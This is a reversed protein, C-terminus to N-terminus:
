RIQLWNTGDSIIMIGLNIPVQPTSTRTLNLYSPSVNWLTASANTIIYVRNINSISPTPLTLATPTASSNYLVTSTATAASTSLSLGVSGNVDLTSLPVFPSTYSIGVNQAEVGAIFSLQGVIMLMLIKNKM